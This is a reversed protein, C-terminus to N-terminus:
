PADGGTLELADLAASLMALELLDQADSLPDSSAPLEAKAIVAAAVLARGKAPPLQAAATLVQKIRSTKM